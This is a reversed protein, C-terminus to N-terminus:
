RSSVVFPGNHHAHSFTIWRGNQRPLTTDLTFFIITMMASLGLDGKNQIFSQDHPNRRSARHKESPEVFRRNGDRVWKRSFLIGTHLWLRRRYGVTSM